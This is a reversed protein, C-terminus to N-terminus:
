HLTIEDKREDAAMSQDTPRCLEQESVVLEECAFSFKCQIM